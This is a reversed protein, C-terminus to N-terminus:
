SFGGSLVLINKNANARNILIKGRFGRKVGTM